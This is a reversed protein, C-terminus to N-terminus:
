DHVQVSEEEGEEREKLESVCDVGASVAGEVENFGFDTVGAAHPM